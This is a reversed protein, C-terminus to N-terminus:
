QQGFFASTEQQTCRGVVFWDELDGACFGKGVKELEGAPGWGQSGARGQECEAKAGEVEQERERGAWRGLLTLCLATGPCCVPDCSEGLSLLSQLSIM